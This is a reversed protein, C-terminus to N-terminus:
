GITLENISIYAEVYAALLIIFVVVSTLVLITKLVNKDMYQGKFVFLSMRWALYFGIAGSLWFGFLEFSHPLTTSIIKQVPMGLRHANALMDATIFGNIIVNFITGIAFLVGSFINIACGKINNSFILVFARFSDKTDLSHKIQVIISSIQENNSILLDDYREMSPHLVLTTAFPVMWLTFVLAFHYIFVTRDKDSM